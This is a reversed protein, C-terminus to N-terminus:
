VHARESRSPSRTNVSIVGMTTNRGFLTGQPGRLVEVGEIDVLNGLLAAPRAVYVGDLFLGVSPEIGSNGASGVGRIQIRQNAIQTGRTVELGPALVKLDAVREIKAAELADGGIAIISIPVDQINQTRKQATVVIEDVTTSPPQIDQAAASGGVGWALAIASASCAFM